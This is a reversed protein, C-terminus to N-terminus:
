RRACHTFPTTTLVSCVRVSITPGSMPTKTRSAQRCAQSGPLPDFAAHESPEARTSYSCSGDMHQALAHNSFEDMLVTCLRQSAVQCNECVGVVELATAPGTEETTTSPLPWARLISVSSWLAKQENDINDYSLRRADCLAMDLPSAHGNNGIDDGCDERGSGLRGSWVTEACTHWLLPAPM